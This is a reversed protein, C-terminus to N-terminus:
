FYTYPKQKEKRQLMQKSNERVHRDSFLAKQKFNYASNASSSPEITESKKKLSKNNNLKKNDNLSTVIFDTVTSIVKPKYTSRELKPIKSVVFQGASTWQPKDLQTKQEIYETATRKRKKTQGASSMSQSKFDASPKAPLISLVKFGNVIAPSKEIIPTPSEVKNTQTKLNQLINLKKKSNHISVATTKDDSIIKNKQKALIKQIKDENPSPDNELIKLAKKPKKYSENTVNKLQQNIIKENQQQKITCKEAIAQKQLVM